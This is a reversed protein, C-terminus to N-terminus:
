SLFPFYCTELIITINIAKGTTLKSWIGPSCRIPVLVATTPVRHHPSVVQPGDSPGWTPIWCSTSKSSVSGLSKRRASITHRKVRSATIPRQAAFYFFWINAALSTKISSIASRASQSDIALHFFWFGHRNIWIETAHFLQRKRTLPYWCCGKRCKVNLM